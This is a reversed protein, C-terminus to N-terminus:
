SLTLGEQWPGPGTVLGLCPFLPPLGLRGPFPGKWEPGWEGRPNGGSDATRPEESWPTM